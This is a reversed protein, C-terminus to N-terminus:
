KQPTFKNTIKINLTQKGKIFVIDLILEALVLACDIINLIVILMLVKKSHLINEGSKRFRFKSLV